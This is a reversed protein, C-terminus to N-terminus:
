GFAGTRLIQIEASAVLKLRLQDSPAPDNTSSFVLSVRLWTIPRMRGSCSPVATATQVAIGRAGAQRRTRETAAEHKATLQPLPGASTVACLVGNGRAFM